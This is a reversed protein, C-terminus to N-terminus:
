DEINVLFEFAFSNCQHSRFCTLACVGPICWFVESDEVNMAIQAPVRPLINAPLSRFRLSSFFPVDALDDRLRDICEGFLISRLLLHSGHNDFTLAKVCNDAEALVRGVSHLIYLSGQESAKDFAHEAPLSCM